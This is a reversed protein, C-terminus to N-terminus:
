SEFHLLIWGALTSGLVVPTWAALVPPLVGTEGLSALLQQFIYFTFGAMICGCCVILIQNRRALQLALPAAILLMVLSGFPVAIKHHFWFRYPKSQLEVSGASHILDLLDGYSLENERVNMLSLTNPEFPLIKRQTLSQTEEAHSNPTAEKVGYLIWVGKDYQASDARLFYTIVNQANKQVIVVDRLQNGDASIFDAHLFTSDASVWDNMMDNKIPKAKEKYEDAQWYHLMRNTKILLTNAFISHCIVIFLVGSALTAIVRYVSVGIARLIIIEHSLVMKVLLIMSSLLVSLPLAFVAIQQVRLVAYDLLPLVSDPHYKLVTDANALMDFVLLLGTLGLLVLIWSLFFRSIISLSIIM